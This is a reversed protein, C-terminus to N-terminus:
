EEKIMKETSLTARHVRATTDFYKHVTPATYGAAALAPKLLKVAENRAIRDLYWLGISISSTEATCKGDGFLEPSELYDGITAAPYVISESEDFVPINLANKILTELEDRM